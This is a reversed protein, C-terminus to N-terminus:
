FNLLSSFGSDISSLDVCSMRPAFMLCPVCHRVEEVQGSWSAVTISHRAGEHYQHAPSHAPLESIDVTDGIVVKVHVAVAAVNCPPRVHGTYVQVQVFSASRCESGELM